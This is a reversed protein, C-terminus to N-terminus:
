IIKNSPGLFIFSLIDQSNAPIKLITLYNQELQWMNAGQSLEIEERQM